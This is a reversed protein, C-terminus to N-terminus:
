PGSLEWILKLGASILHGGIGRCTQFKASYQTWSARGERDLKLNRARQLRDLLVGGGPRWSLRWNEFCDLSSGIVSLFGDEM